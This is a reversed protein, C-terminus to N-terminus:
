SNAAAGCLAPTLATTPKEGQDLPGQDRHLVQQMDELLDLTKRYEEDLLRRLPTGPRLLRRALPSAPPVRLLWALEERYMAGRRVLEEVHSQLGRKDVTAPNGYCGATILAGISEDTLPTDPLCPPPDDPSWNWRSEPTLHGVVESRFIPDLEQLRLHLRILDKTTWGKELVRQALLDPRNSIGGICGPPRAAIRQCLEWQEDTLAGRLIAARAWDNAVSGQYKKESDKRPVLRLLEWQNCDPHAEALNRISEANRAIRVYNEAQDPSWGWHERIAKLYEGHPTVVKLRVLEEGIQISVEITERLSQRLRGRILEDLRKLVEARYQAQRRPSARSVKRAEEFSDKDPTWGYYRRWIKRRPVPTTSIPTTERAIPMTEM